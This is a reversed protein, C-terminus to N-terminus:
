PTELTPMTRAELERKRGDIGVCVTDRRGPTTYM